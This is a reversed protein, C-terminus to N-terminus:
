ATSTGVKSEPTLSYGLRTFICIYIIYYIYTNRRQNAYICIYRMNEKQNVYIEDEDKQNVYIHIHVFKRRKTPVYRMTRRKTPMYRM